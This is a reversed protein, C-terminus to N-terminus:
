IKDWDQYKKITMLFKVLSNVLMKTHIQKIDIGLKKECVSSNQFKLGVWGGEGKRSSCWDTVRFSFCHFPLVLVSLLAYINTYNYCHSLRFANWFPNVFQFNTSLSFTRHYFLDVRLIGKDQSHESSIIFKTKHFYSSTTLRISVDDSAKKQLGVILEIAKKSPMNKDDEVIALVIALKIGPSVKTNVAVM